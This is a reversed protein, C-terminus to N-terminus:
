CFIMKVILAALIACTRMMRIVPRNLTDLALATSEEFSEVNSHIISFVLYIPCFSTSTGLWRPSEPAMFYGICAAFPVCIQLLSPIRWAWSGSYNRTGFTAWAALLSGVYWGCNYLATIIGRHTPYATETILVPASASFFASTGGICLRGIVFMAPNQAATQLTTGLVLWFYRVGITKKRGFRNNSWAVVPYLAFAGLSQVANVFGLWAGTPFVM